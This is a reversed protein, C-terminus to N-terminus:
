SETTPRKLWEYSALRKESMHPNLPYLYHRWRNPPRWGCRCNNPRPPSDPLSVLHTEDGDDGIGYFNLDCEDAIYQNGLSDQALWFPVCSECQHVLHILTVNIVRLKSRGKKTGVSRVGLPRIEGPSFDPSIFDSM